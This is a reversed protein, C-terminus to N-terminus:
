ELLQWVRNEWNYFNIKQQESSDSSSVLGHHLCLERGIQALGSQERIPNGMAAKIIYEGMSLKAKGASCKFTNYENETLRITIQRSKNM